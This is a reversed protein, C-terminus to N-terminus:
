EVRWRKLEVGRRPAIDVELRAAQTETERGDWERWEGGAEVLVRWSPPAGGEGWEPEARRVKKPWPYRYEIWEKSGRAGGFRFGERDPPDEHTARSALVIPRNPDWQTEGGAVPFMAIRLRAAGMPILEIEERPEDTKVPSTQIEGPLGNPELRWEPIRRLGASGPRPRKGM